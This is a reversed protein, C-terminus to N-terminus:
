RNRISREIASALADHGSPSFHTYDSLVYAPNPADRIADIPDVFEIGLKACMSGIREIPDITLRDRDVFKLNNMISDSLSFRPPAYTVTLPFGLEDATQKLRALQLRVIDYARESMSAERGDQIYGHALMVGVPHEPNFRHNELGLAFKAHESGVILANPIAVDTYLTKLGARLGSEEKVVTARRKKSEPLTVEQDERAKAFSVMNGTVVLVLEDCQYQSWRERLELEIQALDLTPLGTNIVEVPRQPGSLRQELCAPWTQDHAVGTGMTVSDGLALIRLTGVPKPVEVPEGRFGQENFALPHGGTMSANYVRGMLRPEVARLTFEIAVLVVLAVVAWRLNQRLLRLGQAIWGPIIRTARSLPSSFRIPSQEIEVHEYRSSPTIPELVAEVHRTHTDNNM